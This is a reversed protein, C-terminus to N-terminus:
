CVTLVEDFDIVICSNQLFFPSSYPNLGSPMDVGGLLDLTAALEGQLWLRVYRYNGFFSWTGRITLWQDVHNFPNDECHVGPAAPDCRPSSWATRLMRRRNAVFSWLMIASMVAALVMSVAHLLGSWRAQSDKDVYMDWRSAWKIPSEQLYKVRIVNSAVVISTWTLREIEHIFM